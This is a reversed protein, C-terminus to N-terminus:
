CFIMAVFHDWASFRKTCRNAGHRRCAKLFTAREVLGLIQSFLSATRVM